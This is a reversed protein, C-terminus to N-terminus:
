SAIILGELSALHLPLNCLLDSAIRAQRNSTSPLTQRRRVIKLKTHCIVPPVFTDTPVTEKFFARGRTGPSASTGPQTQGDVHPSPHEPGQQTLQFPPTLVPWHANHVLTTRRGACPASHDRVPPISAWFLRQKCDQFSPIGPSPLSLLLRSGSHGIMIWGDWDGTVNLRKLSYVPM